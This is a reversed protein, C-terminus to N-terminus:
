AAEEEPSKAKVAMSHPSIEFYDNGDFSGSGVVPQPVVEALLLRRM